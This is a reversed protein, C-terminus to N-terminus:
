LTQLRYIQHLIVLLLIKFHQHTEEYSNLALTDDKTDIAIWVAKGDATNKTSTFIFQQTATNNQYWYNELGNRTSGTQRLGADSFTVLDIENGFTLTNSSENISGVKGKVNGDVLYIVGIKLSGATNNIVGVKQLYQQGNTAVNDTNYYTFSGTSANTLKM